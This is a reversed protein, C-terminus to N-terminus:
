EEESELQRLYRRRPAATKNRVGHGKNWSEANLFTIVTRDTVDCVAIIKVGRFQVEYLYGSRQVKLFTSATDILRSIEIQAKRDVILGFRKAARALAHVTFGWTPRNQDQRTCASNM